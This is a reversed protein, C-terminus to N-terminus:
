GELESHRFCDLTHDNVMGISQMYAYCVKPGVFKFGRKKLAQSMAQAQPTEAPVEAVTPWHNIIPQGEVFQWIYTDFSGVEAQIALFAKANAIFAEIKARSRVIGTDQLLAEVKEPGYAAVKVPDFHDFAARFNQRKKLILYWSLGAEACELCLMEFLRREDHLPQGWEEDHYAIYLPDQNVWACRTTM